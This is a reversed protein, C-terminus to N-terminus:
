PYTAGAYLKELREIVAATPEAGETGAPVLDVTLVATARAKAWRSEYCDYYSGPWGYGGYGYYHPYYGWYGPPGWFPSPRCRPHSRVDTDSDIRESVIRIAAAGETKALRAGHLLALDHVKLKEADLRPDNRANSSSVTVEAGRYTVEFTDADVRRDSYGFNGAVALPQMAPRPPQPTTCAVLLLGVALALSHPVLARM